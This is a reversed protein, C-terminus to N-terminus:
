FRSDRPASKESARVADVLRKFTARLEAPLKGAFRKDLPVVRILGEVDGVDKSRAPNNLGSILKIAILDKLSVTRIGDIISSRGIVHRAEEPSITHIPIGDLVHERQVRDWKAGLAELRDATARRNEAYLDIDVTSRPLGHLYVALGGLVPADVSDKLRRALDLIRSNDGPM